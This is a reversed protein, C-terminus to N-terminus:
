QSRKAQQLFITKQRIKYKLWDWFIRPDNSFNIETKWNPLKEHIIQIYNTDDLLSNNLKWFFPGHQQEDLSNKEIIVASHDTKIATVIDIKAIDDQM